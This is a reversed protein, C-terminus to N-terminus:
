LIPMSIFGNSCKIGSRFRRSLCLIRKPNKAQRICFRTDSTRIKEKLGIRRWYLDYSVTGVSFKPHVYFRDTEYRYVVGLFIKQLPNSIGTNSHERIYFNNGYASEASPFPSYYTEMNLVNFEVGWHKKFFFTVSPIQYYVDANDVHEVLYDAESGNALKTIPFGVGTALKTQWKSYYAPSGQASIRQWSIIVLVCLILTIRKM